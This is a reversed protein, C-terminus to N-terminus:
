RKSTATAMHLNKFDKVTALKSLGDKGAFDFVNAYEFDMGQKYGLSELLVKYFQQATM